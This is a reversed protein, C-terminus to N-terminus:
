ITRPTTLAVSTRDKVTNVSRLGIARSPAHQWRSPSSRGGNRTVLTRHAAGCAWFKSIRAPSRPFGFSTSPWCRPGRMSPPVTSVPPLWCRPAPFANDRRGGCRLLVREAGVPSRLTRVWSAALVFGRERPRSNTPQNDPQTLVTCRGQLNRNGVRHPLHILFGWPRTLEYNGIRRLLEPDLHFSPCLSVSRDERLWAAHHGDPGSQRPQTRNSAASRHRTLSLRRNATRHCKRSRASAGGTDM